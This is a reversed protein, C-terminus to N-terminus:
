RTVTMEIRNDRSKNITFSYKKNNITKTVNNLNRGLKETLELIDNINSKTSIYIVYTGEPIDSVDINSDYWARTKDLKDEVPLMVEYNGDTISGLTKRYVKYNKTNEFIIEREVKSNLGLEM